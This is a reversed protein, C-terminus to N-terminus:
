ETCMPDTNNLLINLLNEPIETDYWEHTEEDNLVEQYIDQKISDENEHILELNNIYNNTINITEHMSEIDKELSDIQCHLSSIENKQSTITVSLDKIDDNLRDIYIFTSIISTIIAIVIIAIFIIKVKLSM